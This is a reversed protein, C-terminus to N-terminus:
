CAFRERVVHDNEEHLDNDLPARSLWDKLLNGTAERERRGHIARLIKDQGGM